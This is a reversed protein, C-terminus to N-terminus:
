FYHGWITADIWRTTNMMCFWWGCCRWFTVEPELAREYSESRLFPRPSSPAQSTKPSRPPVDPGQHPNTPPRPTAPSPSGLSWHGSDGDSERVQVCAGDIPPNLVHCHDFIIRKRRKATMISIVKGETSRTRQPVPPCRLDQGTTQLLDKLSKM